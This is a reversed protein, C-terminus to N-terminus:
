FPKFTALYAAVLGLVLGVLVGAKPALKGRNVVAPLAGLILWIVVKALVWGPFQAPNSVGFKKAMLGFGAVLLLLMAVGHLMGAFKRAPSQAGALLAGVSTFLLLLGALHLYQYLLPSMAAAIMVCVALKALVM